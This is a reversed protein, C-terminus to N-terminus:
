KNAWTARQDLLQETSHSRKVNTSNGFGDVTHREHKQEKVWDDLHDESAADQFM